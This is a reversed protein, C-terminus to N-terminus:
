GEVARRLGAPDVARCGSTYLYGISRSGTILGSASRRSHLWSARVDGITRLVGGDKTPLPDPMLPEALYDPSFVLSREAQVHALLGCGQGFRVLPWRAPNCLKNAHIHAFACHQNCSRRSSSTVESATSQQEDRSRQAAAMWLSGLRLWMEREIPVKTQEAATMSEQAFWEFITALDMPHEGLLMRTM